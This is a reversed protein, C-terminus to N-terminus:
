RDRRPMRRQLVHDRVQRQVSLPSTAQSASLNSPWICCAFDSIGGDRGAAVGYATASAWPAIRAITSNKPLTTILFWDAATAIWIEYSDEANSNDEWQLELTQDDLARGSLGTPATPPVTCGTTSPESDGRDNFALVRYCVELETQQGEDIFSMGTLGPEATGASVWTLGGNTSREVRFGEENESHDWWFVAVSTSSQPAAGTFSPANPPMTATTASVIESFDSIDDQRKVRVYYWYTSNATLRADRYGSATGALTAVLVFPHYQTPTARYVVVADALTSGNAWTLDITADDVQSASLSSAAFLVTACDVNSPASNGDKNFAMVRYCFQQEPLAGDSAYPANADTSFRVTWPDSGDPSREVRFGEEDGSNDTWRVTIFSGEAVARLGSPPSIPSPPPLAPTSTCAASSFASYSKKNGTTRFARAKYCFATSPALGGDRHGAYGAGTIALEMFQGNTGETSRQVEFGTENTSNDQWSVDISSPSWAVAEMNTPAKVTAASAAQATPEVLEGPDCGIVFLSLLSGRLFFRRATLM